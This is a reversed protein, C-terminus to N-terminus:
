GLGPKLILTVGIFGIAIAPYIRGPPRESLWLWAIFPLFLPQSYNLLVASALDLQAIAYFFCYMAALGTGVRLLHSGIRQTKLSIGHSRQQQLLWPLLALLGFLTRLFVVMVNPLDGAAVKVLASACAFAFAGIVALVAGRHLDSTM